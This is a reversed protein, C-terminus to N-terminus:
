EDEFFDHEWSIRTYKETGGSQCLIQETKIEIVEAKPSIYFREDKIRRMQKTM